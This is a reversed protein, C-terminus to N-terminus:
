ITVSSCARAIIDRPLSDEHAVVVSVMGQGAPVDHDEGLLEGASHRGGDMRTPTVTAGNTRTM